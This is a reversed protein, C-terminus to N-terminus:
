AYHVILLGVTLTLISISILLYSSLNTIPELNRKLTKKNLEDNYKQRERTLIKDKEHQLMYNSYQKKARSSIKVNHYFSTFTKFLGRGLGKRIMVVFLSITLIIVTGVTIANSWRATYNINKKFFGTLLIIILMAILSTFFYIITAKNWSNKWYTKAKSININKNM